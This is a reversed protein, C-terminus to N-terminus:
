FFTLQPSTIKPPINDKPFFVAKEGLGLWDIASGPSNERERSECAGGCLSESESPRPIQPHPGPILGWSNGM